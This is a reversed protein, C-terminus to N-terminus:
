SSVNLEGEILLRNWYRDLREWYEYGEPSRGWSFACTILTEDSYPTYGGAIVENRCNRKYKDNADYLKLFKELKARNM